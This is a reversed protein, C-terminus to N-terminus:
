PAHAGDGMRPITRDRSFSGEEFSVELDEATGAGGQRTYLAVAYDRLALQQEEESLDRWPKGRHQAIVEEVSFEVSSDIGDGRIKAKIGDM